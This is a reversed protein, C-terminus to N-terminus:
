HGSRDRTITARPPSLLPLGGGKPPMAERRARPVAHRCPALIAALRPRISGGIAGRVARRPRHTRDHLRPPRSRPEAPESTSPRRRGHWRRAPRESAADARRGAVRRSVAVVGAVRRRHPWSLRGISGRRAGYPIVVLDSVSSLNPPCWVYQAYDHTPATGRASSSM